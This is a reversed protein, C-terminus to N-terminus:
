NEADHDPIILEDHFIREDEGDITVEEPNASHFQEEMRLFTKNYMMASLFAPLTVGLLIVIPVIQFFLYALVYPLAYLVVSLITKPFQLVSVTLANRFTIKIPNVFKAQLPFVMTSVLLIMFGAAFIILRIPYPLQAEGQYLLYLDGALVAYVFLMILWMATSQKFNDKFSHFFAKVIYNEEDRVIKLCVYHMATFAAGATFIPICCVFVLLNLIMLDAMKGLAQMVPSDMNLFKM